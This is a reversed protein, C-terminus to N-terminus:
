NQIRVNGGSGEDVEIQQPQGAVNVQGGSSAEADVTQNAFVSATGGSSAEVTVDACILSEAQLTGGSSAGAHLVACEGSVQLDSGSSSELDIRGGSLASIILSAGSSAEGVLSSGFDGSVTVDAGATSDIETLDPLTIYVTVDTEKSILSAFFGRDIEAMLKDGKVSIDLDEFIKSDGSEARVSFAGGIEVIANIGTSIEIRTFNALDYDQTEATAIQPTALMVTSAALAQFRTMKFMSFKRFSITFIPMTSSINM